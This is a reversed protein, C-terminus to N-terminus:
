FAVGVWYLDYGGLGGPRDSSFIMMVRDPDVEEHILIPRYENYASNIETGLNSPESWLNGIFKSYYIDFGGQGGERDSVFVMNDNLIFPCKDNNISNLRTAKNIKRYATDALNRTLMNVSVDLDTYYIDFNNKERNSCFYLSSQDINLSPYMDDHDSNLYRVPYDKNVLATDTDFFYHIDFDGKEDTAYMLLFRFDDRDYEYHHTYLLYPGLENSMTNVYHLKNKLLNFDETSSNYPYIEDRITLEGSTKSFTISMPYLHIDFNSGHYRDTSFALFYFTGISPATSNYDNFPTNYEELNQPIIPLDGHDYKYGKNIIIPCGTLFMLFFLGSLNKMYINM